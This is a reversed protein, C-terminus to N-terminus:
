GVRRNSTVWHVASGHVAKKNSKFTTLTHIITGFGRRTRVTRVLRYLVPKNELGPPVGMTKDVPRYSAIRRQDKSRITFETPIAKSM